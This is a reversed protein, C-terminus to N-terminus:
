NEFKNTTHSWIVEQTLGGVEEYLWCSGWPGWPWWPQRPSPPWHSTVTIMNTLVPCSLVPCSLVPCSLVPRSLVPRSLVPSSPVPRSPLIPSELYSTVPLKRLEQWTKWLRVHTEPCSLLPCSLVPCSLVPRSLVPRSLVPSSPVPRSPLIPSELYSTVPLKRLEKWTKMLSWANWITRMHSPCVLLYQRKCTASTEFLPHIIFRFVRKLLLSHVNALISSLLFKVNM